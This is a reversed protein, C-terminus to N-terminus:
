REKQRITKEEHEDAAVPARKRKGARNLKKKRIPTKGKGKWIKWAGKEQAVKGNEKGGAATTKGGKKKRTQERLSEIPLGKTKKDGVQVKRGLAFGGQNRLGSGGKKTHSFQRKGKRNATKLSGQL